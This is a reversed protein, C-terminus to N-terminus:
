NKNNKKYILKEGISINKLGLIYACHTIIPIILYLLLFFIYNYVKLDGFDFAKGDALEIFGYLSANALKFLALPLEQISNKMLFLIIVLAISPIITFLGIKLGVFMDANKHKFKVLNGDKFGLQWISPYIFSALFVICFLQSIVTTTIRTSNEVEKIPYETITYGEAEYKARNVDEGDSFYYSYLQKSEDSGEVTGYATYGVENSFLGSALVNFSIVIIACMINAIVIKLFLIASNKIVEKM